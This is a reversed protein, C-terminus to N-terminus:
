RELREPKPDVERQVPVDKPVDTRKSGLLEDILARYHLMSQRLEETSSKGDRNSDIAAHGARYHEVIRPHNVSLDAAHKEFDGMPYGRVRMIEEVLEDAEVVTTTPRELFRMEIRDWDARFRAHEEATLPRITFNRAQEARAILDQEARSRNGKERLAHEYEPGFKDRLAESRSRRAGRAILGIVALVIIAGVAVWIWIPDINLNNM